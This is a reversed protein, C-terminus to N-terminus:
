TGGVIERGDPLPEADLEAIATAIWSFVADKALTRDYVVFNRSRTGSTDQHQITVTLHLLSPM